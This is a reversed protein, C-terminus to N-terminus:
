CRKDELHNETQAEALTEQAPRDVLRPGPGLCESLPACTYFRCGCDMCVHPQRWGGGHLIQKPGSSVRRGRCSPCDM